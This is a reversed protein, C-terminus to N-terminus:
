KIGILTYTASVINGSSFLFRVDTAATAWLAQGGGTGYNQTGSANTSCQIARVRTFSSTHANNIVIEYTGSENTANGVSGGLEIQADANDASESVSAGASNALTYRSWAYDSADAEFTAGGDDSFRLYANVGDTQPVADRVILMFTPFQTYTDLALDLAAANTVTGTALVAMGAVDELEIKKNISGSADRMFVMDATRDPSTEETLNGGFIDVTSADLGIYEIILVYGQGGLAGAVGSTTHGVGGGGAGAGYAIGATGAVGGGVSANGGAAGGGWYSAAGDGGAGLTLGGTEAGGRRGSRGAVSPGILIGGSGTAAVAGGGGNATVATSVGDGPGGPNATITEGSGAPDFITASGASGNTGTAGGAAGATGITVTASGGLEAATYVKFRTEGSAGGGAVALGDSDTVDAGGSSGGPGTVYVQCYRMGPSPTYTGSGTFEQTKVAPGIGGISRWKESDYQFVVGEDNVYTQGTTPSTPWNSAAM